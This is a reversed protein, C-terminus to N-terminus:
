GLVAGRRYDVIICLMHTPMDSTFNQVEISVQHESANNRRGLNALRLEEDIRLGVMLVLHEHNSINDMDFVSQSM